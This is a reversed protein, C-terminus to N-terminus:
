EMARWKGEEEHEVIKWDKPEDCDVLCLNIDLSYFPCKNCNKENENCINKITSLALLIDDKSYM